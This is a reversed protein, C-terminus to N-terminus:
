NMNAVTESESATKAALKEALERRSTETKVRQFEQEDLMEQVLDRGRIVAKINGQSVTTEPTFQFITGQFEDCAEVFETKGHEHSHQKAAKVASKMGNIRRKIQRINAQHQTEGFDKVKFLLPGFPEESLIFEAVETLTLQEDKCAELVKRIQNDSVHHENWFNKMTRVKWNSCM